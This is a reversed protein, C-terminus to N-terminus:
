GRKKKKSLEGLQKQLEATRRTPLSYSSKRKRYNHIRILNLRLVSVPVCM